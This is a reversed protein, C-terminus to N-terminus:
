KEPYGSPEVEITRLMFWTTWSLIECNLMDITHAKRNYSNSSCRKGTTPDYITLHNICADVLMVEAPSVGLSSHPSARYAFLFRSLKTELSGETSKKLGRKLTQVAREVLGNSSPHYPPTLVGNAKLFM